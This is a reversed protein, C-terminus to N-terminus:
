GGVSRFEIKVLYELVSVPEVERTYSGCNGVLRRLKCLNRQLSRLLVVNGNGNVEVETLLEPRALLSLLDHSVKHLINVYTDAVLLVRFLDETELGAIGINCLAFQFKRSINVDEVTHSVLESELVDDAREPFTM